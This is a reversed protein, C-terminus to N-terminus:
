FKLSLGINLANTVLDTELSGGTDLDAENQSYTGKYEGFIAWRENLDYSAGAVWQVAPGTVQYGFTRTGGSQVDVHPISAGIGAGVYPTYRRNEEKWRYFVNATVINLGDTFELRTFPSAAMTEDDAYVKAHNFELGFGLRDTQWYTARFGYYPPMEFSKGEWGANFDFATGGTGDVTGTVGSHPASQTGSYVSLEWEALAPTAALLSVVLPLLFKKM